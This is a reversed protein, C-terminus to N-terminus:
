ARAHHSTQDLPKCFPTSDQNEISAIEIKCSNKSPFVMQECGVSWNRASADSLTPVGFWGDSLPTFGRPFFLEPRDKRKGGPGPQFSLSGLSPPPSSSSCSKIRQIPSGPRRRNLWPADRLASSLLGREGTTPCDSKARRPRRVVRRSRKSGRYISIGSISASGGGLKCHLRRSDATSLINARHDEPLPSDFKLVCPGLNRVKGDFTVRPNCGVGGELGPNPVGFKGSATVYGSPSTSL